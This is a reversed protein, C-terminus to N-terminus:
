KIFQIKTNLMTNGVLEQNRMWKFEIAYQYPNMKNTVNIHLQNKSVDIKESDDTTINHLWVESPIPKMDSWSVIIADGSKVEGSHIDPYNYSLTKLCNNWCIEEYSSDYAMGNHTISPKPIIITAIDNM